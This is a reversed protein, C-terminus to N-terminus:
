VSPRLGRDFDGGRACTDWEAAPVDAIRSSVRVIVNEEGSETRPRNSRQEIDGM